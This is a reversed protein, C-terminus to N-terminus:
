FLIDDKQLNLPYLEDIFLFSILQSILGEFRLANKTRKKKLGYPCGKIESIKNQLVGALAKIQEEIFRSVDSLQGQLVKVINVQYDNQITPSLISYIYGIYHSLKESSSALNNMKRISELLGKFAYQPTDIHYDPELSVMRLCKQINSYLDLSLEDTKKIHNKLFDELEKSM